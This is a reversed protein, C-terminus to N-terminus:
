RLNCDKGVSKEFRESKRLIFLIEFNRFYNQKTSEEEM